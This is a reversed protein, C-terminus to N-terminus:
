QGSQNTGWNEASATVRVTDGWSEKGSAGGDRPSRVVTPLPSVLPSSRLRLCIQGFAPLALAARSHLPTCDTFQSGIHSPSRGLRSQNFALLARKACPGTSARRLAAVIRLGAGRRAESSFVAFQRLGFARLAICGEAKPTSRFGGLNVRRPRLPAKSSQTIRCLGRRCFSPPAARRQRGSPLRGLRQAKPATTDLFRLSIKAM